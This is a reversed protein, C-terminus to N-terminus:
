NGNVVAVTTTEIMWAGVMCTVAVITVTEVQVEVEELDMEGVTMSIQTTKTTETACLVAAEEVKVATMTTPQDVAFVRQVNLSTPSQPM